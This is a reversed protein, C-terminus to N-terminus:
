HNKAHTNPMHFEILWILKTRHFKSSSYLWKLRINEKM